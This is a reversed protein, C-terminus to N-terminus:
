TVKLAFNHILKYYFFSFILKSVKFAIKLVEFIFILHSFTLNSFEIFM